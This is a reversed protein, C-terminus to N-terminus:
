YHHSRERGRLIFAHGEKSVAVDPVKKEPSDNRKWEMFQRGKFCKESFVHKELCMVCEETFKM